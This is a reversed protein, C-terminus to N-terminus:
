SLREFIWLYRKTRRFDRVNKRILPIGRAAMRLTLMYEKRDAISVPFSRGEATELKTMYLRKEHM